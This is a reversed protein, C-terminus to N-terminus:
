LNANEKYILILTSKLYFYIFIIKSYYTDNQLSM